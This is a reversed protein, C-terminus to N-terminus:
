RIDLGALKGELRQRRSSPQQARENLALAQEWHARALEPRDQALLVNGLKEHADVLAGQTKLTVPMVSVERLIQELLAKAPALRDRGLYVEVLTYQANYVTDHLPGFRKRLAGVIAELDEQMAQDAPEMRLRAKILIVRDHETPLGQRRGIEVRRAFLGIVEKWAAESDSRGSARVALVAALIAVARSSEQHDPGYVAELRALASRALTGALEGDPDRHALLLSIDLRTRATEPHREGLTAVLIEESRRLSALAAVPDGNWFQSAGLAQWARGTEPHEEGLVRRRREVLASARAVAEAHRSLQRLAAVLEVTAEDAILPARERTLAIAREQAAVAQEYDLFMRLWQGHQILLSALPRPDRSAMGEARELALRLTARGADIHAMGWHARALEVDLLLRTSERDAPAVAELRAQGEAVAARAQAHQSQINLLHARAAHLPAQQDPLDVSRLQAEDLLERARRYDGLTTYSRALTTLMLSAFRPDIRDGTDGGRLSTEADRLMASSMLPSQGLGGTTLADFSAEFLRRMAQATNAHESARSHLYLGAVTGVAAVLLLLAAATSAIRQRRLFLRLRHSRRSPQTSVPRHELWARLDAQLQAVSPPRARRDPAVCTAVISDLDGELTRALAAPSACGRVSAVSPSAHRAYQSPLLSPVAGVVGETPSPGVGCLLGRLMVGLAYIDAAVSGGTAPVEPATYGPTTALRRSPGRQILSALGFDLLVPRGSADVLVNSPKLDSHLAGKEHAYRLGECLQIFLSVRARLDLRRQDCWADIAEGQVRQMAFWPCGDSAIGGDLLTAINPHELMALMDRENRLVEALVASSADLQLCKLAVTQAYQGDARSALYVRGMGGSGIVGEIRWAGLTSGIRPDNQAGTSEEHACESLIKQPSDLLVGSLVDAAFLRVVEAHLAHDSRHLANLQRARARAGLEAWADFLALARAELDAPHEM